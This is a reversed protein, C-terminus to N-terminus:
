IYGLSSLTQQQIQMVEDLECKKWRHWAEPRPGLSLTQVIREYEVCSDLGLFELVDRLCSLPDNLFVEYRITKVQREELVNLGERITRVEEVWNRAAISLMTVGSRNIESPTQDNAWWVKHNDWWNVTRLSEAVARGDRVVLIYLAEPFASAIGLIRRNNATRKSLIVDSYQLSQLRIFETRLRKAIEASLPEYYERTTIGSRRYIPEGESPTPVLKKAWSRRPMNADGSGSFWAWKKLQYHCATMRNLLPSPFWRPSRADFNSVYGVDHQLALLKYLLTTGSRGPGLIFVPRFPKM